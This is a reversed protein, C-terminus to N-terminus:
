RGGSSMFKAFRDLALRRMSIDNKAKGLQAFTEKYGDPVFVCDWQFSRDGAPVDPVTGQIAGEFYHIKMGDCYGIVTKATLNNIPLNGVIETFREAGLKDWFIQTLGAPLGNLGDVYLGTHEVFLPRGVVQFAKVLKDEVLKRVDETQLEEIKIPAPIVNVGVGRLIDTVEDIKYKNSSVFRIDM